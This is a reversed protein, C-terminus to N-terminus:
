EGSSWDAAAFTKTGIKETVSSKARARERLQLALKM